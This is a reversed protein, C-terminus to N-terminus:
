WWRRRRTRRQAVVDGLEEGLHEVDAVPLSQDAALHEGDVADLQRAVGALGLAAGTGVEFALGGLQFGGGLGHEGAMALVVGQGDLGVEVGLFGCRM